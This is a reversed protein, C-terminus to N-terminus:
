IPGHVKFMFSPETQQLYHCFGEIYHALTMLAEFPGWKAAVMCQEDLTM